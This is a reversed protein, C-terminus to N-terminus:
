APKLHEGHKELLDAVCVSIKQWAGMDIKASQVAAELLLSCKSAKEVAADREDITKSKHEHANLQEVAEVLTPLLEQEKTTYNAQKGDRAKTLSYSQFKGNTGILHGKCRADGTHYLSKICALNARSSERDGWEGIEKEAARHLRQFVERLIRFTKANTCETYFWDILHVTKMILNCEPCLPLFNWSHDKDSGDPGGKAYAIIHAAHVSEDCAPNLKNADAATKGRALCGLCAFYSMLGFEPNEKSVYTRAWMKRKCEASVPSRTDKIKWARSWSSQVGTDGEEDVLEVKTKYTNGSVLKQFRYSSGHVKYEQKDRADDVNVVTIKYMHKKGESKWSAMEESIAWYVDLFDAGQTSTRKPPDLKRIGGGRGSSKAASAIAKKGKKEAAGGGTDAYHPQSSAAATTAATAAAATNPAAAVTRAISRQPAVEEFGVSVVMQQAAPSDSAQQYPSPPSAAAAAAPFAADKKVGDCKPKKGSPSEANEGVVRKAGGGGGGGLSPSPPRGATVPSTVAGNDAHQSQMADEAAAAAVAAAAATSAATKPKEGKKASSADYEAKPEQLVWRKDGTGAVDVSVIKPEKGKELADLDTQVQGRRTDSFNVIKRVHTLIDNLSKPTPKSDALFKLIVARRERYQMLRKPNILDEKMINYAKTLAPALNISQRGPYKGNGIKSDIAAAKQNLEELTLQDGLEKKWGYLRIIANAFFADIQVGCEKVWVDGENGGISQHFTKFADFVEKIKTDIAKNVVLHGQAKLELTRDWHITLRPAISQLKNRVKEQTVPDHNLSELLYQKVLHSLGKVNKEAFEESETSKANTTYEVTYKKSAADYATAKGVRDHHITGQM